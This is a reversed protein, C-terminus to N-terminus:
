TRWPQTGRMAMQHMPEHREKVKLWGTANLGEYDLNSAVPAGTALADGMRDFHGPSYLVDHELFAIGDFQGEALKICRIMQEIIAAHGKGKPEGLSCPFPNGPVPKWASTTVAVDHHMTEAVARQITALSKQMLPEPAANNTYWIGLLRLKKRDSPQGFPQLKEAQTVFQQFVGSPLRKGFHEQIAEVADIGLERHGLLLNFTHDELSLPYPPPPSGHEMHRFKHRWKLQPLCWCKGGRQRAKEHIYGEEGGFGRFLPHFGPWAARRMCFLGLGQSFIEFPETGQWRPDTDWTGWLGPKGAQNWHTSISQGDDYLLPGTVLDNSDPNAEIWDLM